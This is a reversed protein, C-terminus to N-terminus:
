MKPMIETIQIKAVASCFLRITAYDFWIVRKFRTSVINRKDRYEKEGFNKVLTINGEVLLMEVIIFNEFKLPIFIQRKENKM